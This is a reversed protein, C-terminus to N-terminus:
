SLFAYMCASLCVCVCVCVCVCLCVYMCVRARACVCAYLYMHPFSHSFKYTKTWATSVMRNNERINYFWFEWFVCVRISLGIEACGISCM